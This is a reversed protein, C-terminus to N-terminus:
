AINGDRNPPVFSVNPATQEDPADSGHALTPAPDRGENSKTWGSFPPLDRCSETVPASYFDVDASTGPVSRPPVISIYWHKTNNSVNCQFISFIATQGNYGGTRSYKCAREWYGDKAYTGNVAPHGAGDVIVRGPADQYDMDDDHSEEDEEAESDHMIPMNDDTDSHHHHDLPMGNPDDVRRGQYDGRPQHSQVQQHSDLLEREMWGWQSRNETMWVYISHLGLLDKLISVYRDFAYHIENPYTHASRASYFARAAVVLGIGTDVHLGPRENCQMIFTIRDKQKDDPISAVVRLVMIAASLTENGVWGTPATYIAKLTDVILLNSDRGCAAAALLNEALPESAGYASSYLAFSVLGLNALNGLNPVNGKLASACDVAASEASTRPQERGQM